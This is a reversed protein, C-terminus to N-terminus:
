FFNFPKLVFKCTLDCNVAGCTFPFLQSNEIRAEPQGLWCKPAQAVHNCMNEYAKPAFHSTVMACFNATGEAFKQAAPHNSRNKRHKLKGTTKERMMAPIEKPIHDEKTLVFRSM